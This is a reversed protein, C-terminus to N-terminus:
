NHPGPNWDQKPSKKQQLGIGAVSLILSCWLTVIHFVAWMYPCQLLSQVAVYFVQM